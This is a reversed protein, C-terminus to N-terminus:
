GRKSKKPAMQYATRFLLSLDEVTSADLNKDARLYVDLIDPTQEINKGDRVLPQAKQTRLTEPDCQLWGCLALLTSSEIDKCEGREIRSLTPIKLETIEALQRLSLSENNRKRRILRGLRVMDMGEAM